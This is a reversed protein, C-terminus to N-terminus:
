RTSPNLPVGFITDSSTTEAAYKTCIAGFAQILISHILFHLPINPRPSEKLSSWSLVPM